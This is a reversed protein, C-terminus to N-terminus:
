GRLAEHRLPKFSIRFAFHLVCVASISNFLLSYCPDHGRVRGSYAYHTLFSRHLSGGVEFWASPRGATTRKGQKLTRVGRALREQWSPAFHTKRPTLAPGFGPLYMMAHSHKGVGMRERELCSVHKTPFSPSPSFLFSYRSRAHVNEM